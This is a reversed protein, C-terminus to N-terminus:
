TSPPASRGDIRASRRCSADRMSRPAVHSELMWEAGLDAGTRSM